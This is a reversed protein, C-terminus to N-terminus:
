DNFQVRTSTGNESECLCFNENLFQNPDSVECNRYGSDIIKTLGSLTRHQCKFDEWGTSSLNLTWNDKTYTADLQEICLGM